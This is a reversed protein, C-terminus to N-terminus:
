TVLEKARSTKNSRARTTVDEAQKIETFEQLRQTTNFIFDELYYSHALILVSFSFRQSTAPASACQISIIRYFRM